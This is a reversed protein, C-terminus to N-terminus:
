DIKISDPFGQEKAREYINILRKCQFTNPFFRNPIGRSDKLLKSETGSIRMISSNQFIWDDLKSWFKADTKAIIVETELNNTLRKEKRSSTEIKRMDERSLLYYGLSKNWNFKKDKVIEWCKESKAFETPIQNQDYPPKIIIEYIELVLDLLCNQFDDRISQSNWVKNFDFEFKDPIDFSLKSITYTTVNVGYNLIGNKKSAIKRVTSWLINKGILVRFYLDNYNDVNKDWKKEILDTFYTFNKEPGKSVIHPLQDWSNIYRGLDTKQFYQAKPYENEFRRKEAGKLKGKNDMYQGRTREYFWKSPKIQNNTTPAYIRRSLKEIQRHFPHSSSFDASKVKNQSNACRSIEPVIEDAMLRDKIESLKMQVYVEKLKSAIEEKKFAAYLSSTTQGGNVIQLNTIKTIVRANDLTDLEVKDATATIGNNFAFFMQPRTEITDRIDKNVKGRAQLFVRVNRELLRNGWKEYIRALLEGNLVALYSFYNVSSLDARLVPICSKFDNELDIIIDEQTNRGEYLRKIRDLDWIDAESKINNIIPTEIQDSRTKILKNTLIIFRFKEVDKIRKSLFQSILFMSSTKELSSIFSSDRIKNIYNSGRKILSNLEAMNIGVVENTPSFSVLFISLTNDDSLPDGGYGNIQIGTKENNWDNVIQAEKCDGNEILLDSIIEFFSDQNSEGNTSAQISIENNLDIIFEEMM